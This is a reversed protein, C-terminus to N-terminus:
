SGPVFPCAPGAQVARAPNFVLLLGRQRRNATEGRSVHRRASPFSGGDTSPLGRRRGWHTGSRQEAGTRELHLRGAQSNDQCLTSAMAQAPAFAVGAVQLFSAGGCGNSLRSRFAPASVREKEARNGRVPSRGGEAFAWFLAQLSRAQRATGWLGAPEACLLRVVASSQAAAFALQGLSLKQKTRQFPKALRQM